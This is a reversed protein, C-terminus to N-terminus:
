SAKKELELRITEVIAQPEDADSLLIDADPLDDEPHQAVYVVLGAPCSQRFLSALDRYIAVPTIYNTLFLGCRGMEIEFRAQLPSSVSIVRFGNERLAIEKSLLTHGDPNLSLVANECAM